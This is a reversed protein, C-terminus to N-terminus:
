TGPLPFLWVGNTFCHDSALVDSPCYPSRPGWGGTRDIWIYDVHGTPTVPQPPTLPEGDHDKWTPMTARDEFVLERMSTYFAPAAEPERLEDPTLNFDGALVKPQGDAYGTATRLYEDAQPMAWEPENELHTTCVTMGGAYTHLKLCLMTRCEDTTCDLDEDRTSLFRALGDVKAGGPHLIANGFWGKECDPNKGLSVVMTGASRTRTTLDEFDERCVENLSIFWPGDVGRFFAVLDRARNKLAPTGVCSDNGACLNYHHIPINVSTAASGAASPRMQQVDAPTYELIMPRDDTAEIVRSTPGATVPPASEAYVPISLISFSMTMTVAVAM